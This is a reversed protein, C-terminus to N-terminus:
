GLIQRIVLKEVSLTSLYSPIYMKKTKEINDIAVKGGYIRMIIPIAMRTTMAM